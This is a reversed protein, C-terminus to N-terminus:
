YRGREHRLKIEEEIAKDMQAITVPKKGRYKGKGKLCGAVDELRTVPFVPTPRLLVGQPTEEVIFETGPVWSRATRINKPLVIQGKSSLRTTEM